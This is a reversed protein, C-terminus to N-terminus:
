GIDEEGTRECLKLRTRPTQRTTPSDRLTILGQSNQVHVGQLQQVSERSREKGKGKEMGIRTGDAWKEEYYHTMGTRIPSNENNKRFANLTKESSVTLGKHNNYTSNNNQFCKTVDNSNQESSSIELTSNSLTDSSPNSVMGALRAQTPDGFQV